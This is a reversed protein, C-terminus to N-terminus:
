QIHVSILLQRILAFALAPSPFRVGPNRLEYDCM